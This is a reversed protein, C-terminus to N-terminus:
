KPKNFIIYNEHFATCVLRHVKHTKTKGAVTLGVVMYGCSDANLNHVKGKRLYSGRKNTVQRDLSRINGLNSVEYYQEYEVVQKWYESM